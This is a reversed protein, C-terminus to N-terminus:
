GFGMWLVQFEYRCKEAYHLVLYRWQQEYVIHQIIVQVCGEGLFSWDPCGVVLVKSQSNYEQACTILTPYERCRRYGCAAKCNVCFSPFYTLSSMISGSRWLLGWSLRGYLAWVLVYWARINAEYYLLVGGRRKWDFTPISSIYRLLVTCNWVMKKYLRAFRCM